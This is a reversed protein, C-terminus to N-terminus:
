GPFFNLFKRVSVEGMSYTSVTTKIAGVVVDRLNDTVSKSQITNDVEEPIRKYNTKIYILLADSLLSYICYNFNVTSSGCFM